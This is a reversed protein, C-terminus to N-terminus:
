LVNPNSINRKKNKFSEMSTRLNFKNPVGEDQIWPHKLAKEAVLRKSPDVQLLNQIFDKAQESLNNWQEPPFTFNGKIIQIKLTEENDSHFPFCGSLLVFTIVGISWMDVSKDYSLDGRVIEPAAYHPTGCHTVLLEGRGFSKALGFDSVVVRDDHVSCLLNEPKLDRHAIGQDHLYEIGNLIQKVIKRADKEGYSGRSVIQDFLEGGSIYELVLYVDTPTEIFEKLKIINPHSLELMIEIERKLNIWGKQSLFRKPIIKIAVIENTQINEAKKVISFSGKGIQKDIFYKDLPSSIETSEM